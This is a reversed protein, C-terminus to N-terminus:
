GKALNNAFTKQYVYFLTNSYLDVLNEMEKAVLEM